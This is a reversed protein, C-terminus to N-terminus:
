GLELTCVGYIKGPTAPLPEGRSMRATEFVPQFGNSSALLVAESNLEPVDISIFRAKVTNTLRVLLQKAIASDNALLPGIKYNERCARISGCAVIEADSRREAILTKRSGTNTFWHTLYTRREVGGISRDFEILRDLDAAVVERFNVSETKQSIAESLWLSPVAGSYRINRYALEFGSRRYNAQQDVVGDLAVICDGLYSMGHQWVKWGLGQGRYAPQCLYLGLFGYARGGSVQGQKVVSVAAVPLNDVTAVYFGEPDASYFAEADDLGPNWGEAAAWDLIM